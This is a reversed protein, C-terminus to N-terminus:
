SGTEGVPKEWVWQVVPMLPRWGHLSGVPDVRSVSLRILDGGYQQWLSFLVQESEVTVTNAVLRGGPNLRAMVTAAIEANLGGGIFVADPDPLDDLGDPLHCCLDQWEPVGLRIANGRAADLRDQRNDIGIAKADHAARMWEIGIAGSGCGLDWLLGHPQPKLRALSVARVESKTLMGDSTYASDTLGPSSPLYGSVSAPCAVAVVHFDPPSLGAKPWSAAIAEDRSEKDGGIHGLATIMADGYGADDLLSAIHASSSADHAFVLLRAGPSLHRIVKEHPRGHVTLCVCDHLPWGMRSAALQFGSPAPSTRMEDPSFHLALTSAAGYWLPDGTALIVVPRGRKEELLPIIELFPSPWAMTEGGFGSMAEVSALLRSPGIVLDAATIKEQLESAIGSVGDENTGIVRLWSM